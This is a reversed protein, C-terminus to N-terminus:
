MIKNQIDSKDDGQSFNGCPSKIIIQCFLQKLTIKTIRNFIQETGSTM